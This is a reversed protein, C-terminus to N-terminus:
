QQLIFNGDLKPTGDAASESHIGEAKRAAVLRDTFTTLTEPISCRNTCDNISEIPWDVRCDVHGTQSCEGTAASSQLGFLDSRVVILTKKRVSSFFRSARLDFSVFFDGGSVGTSASAAGASAVSGTWDGVLLLLPSAGSAASTNIVSWAVSVGTSGESISFVCSASFSMGCGEISTYCGTFVEGVSSVLTM